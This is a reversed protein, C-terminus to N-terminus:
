NSRTKKGGTESKMGRKFGSMSVDALIRKKGLVGRIWLTPNQTKRRDRTTDQMWYPCYM